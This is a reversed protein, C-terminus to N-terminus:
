HANQLKKLFQQFKRKYAERARQGQQIQEPTMRKLIKCEEQFVRRIYAHVFAQNNKLASPTSQSGLNPIKLVKTVNLPKSALDEVDCLYTSVQHTKPAYVLVVAHKRWEDQPSTADLTMFVFADPSDLYHGLNLISNGRFLGFDVVSAGYDPIFSYSPTRKKPSKNKSQPIAQVGAQIYYHFGLFSEDHKTIAKDVTVVDGNEIKVPLLMQSEIRFLGELPLYGQPADNPGLETAFLPAKFENKHKRMRASLPKKAKQGPKKQALHTQQDAALATSVMPAFILTVTTTLAAIARRFFGSKNAATTSM